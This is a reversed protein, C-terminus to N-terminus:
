SQLVSLSGRLKIHRYYMLVEIERKIITDDSTWDKKCYQSVTVLLFFFLMVVEKCLGTGCNSCMVCYQSITCQFGPISICSAELKIKRTFEYWPLLCQWCIPPFGLRKFFKLTLNRKQVNTKVSNPHSGSTSVFPCCLSSHGPYGGWVCVSWGRSAELLVFHLVDDAEDRCLIRVAVKQPSGFIKDGVWIM